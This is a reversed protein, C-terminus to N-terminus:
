SKGAGKGRGEESASHIQTHFQYMTYLFHNENGEGACEAVAVSMDPAALWLSTSAAALPSTAGSGPQSWAAAPGQCGGRRTGRPRAKAKKQALDRPQPTAPCPPRQRRVRDKVWRLLGGGSRSPTSPVPPCASSRRSGLAVVPRHTAELRAM